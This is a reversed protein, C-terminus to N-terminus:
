IWVWAERVGHKHDERRAAEKGSPHGGEHHRGTDHVSKGARAGDRERRNNLKKKRRGCVCDSFFDTKEFRVRNRMWAAMGVVLVVVLLAGVAVGIGIGAKSVDDLQQKKPVVSPTATITEMVTSFVTQMSGTPSATVTQVATATVTVAQSGKNDASGQAGTGATAGTEGNTGSLVCITPEPNAAINGSVFVVLM